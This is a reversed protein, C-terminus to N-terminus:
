TVSVVEISFWSVLTIVAVVSLLVPIKVIENFRSPVDSAMQYFSTVRTTSKLPSPFIAVRESPNLITKSSQEYSKSSVSKVSKRELVSDATSSLPTKM